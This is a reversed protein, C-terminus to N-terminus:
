VAQVTMVIPSGFTATPTTTTQGISKFSLTGGGAIAFLLDFQYSQGPTLGTVLFPFAPPVIISAANAEGTIVYGVVPTVTGRAALAFSVNDNAAGSYTGYATVLVNGSAPATFANTYAAASTLTVAGGTSVTGSPSGSVYACGTLTNGSVGTYTVIATTAGSAAVTVTGGGSPFLTGNAVALVGASPSSWAAIGSITGGNSGAAVTSAAGTVAALTASTTSQTVQVSPAYQTPACLYQGSAFHVHGADAAKGIAGAAQVGTAAIDGATGDLQLKGATSTTGAVVSPNPYTGTLDGGASGNPPLSTAAPNYLPM